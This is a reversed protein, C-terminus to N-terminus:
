PQAPGLDLVEQRARHESVQANNTKLLKEQYMCKDAEKLIGALSCGKDGTAVGVSLSLPCQPHHRNHTTVNERVRASAKEAASADTGPMLVAFEDGGTRAIVDEARFAERLVEAARRLLEDGAAHGQSDNTAKLGDVDAIVISVPFQRGRELRAMEGDFYTRNYLGTLADHSSLYWLKEEAWKRLDAVQQVQEYLRANEIAMGIQNAIAIYLQMEESSFPHHKRSAIYMVGQVKERSKMPVAALSCIGEGSMLTTMVRSDKILDNVVIPEGSQVAQESLSEGMKFTRVQDAFEEAVGRYTALVLEETRQELLYMYGVEVGTVELVKDLVRDLIEQLNLSSSVTASIANLAALQESRRKIEEEARKRETIDRSICLIGEPVPYV